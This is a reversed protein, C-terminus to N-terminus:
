EAVTPRAQAKRDDAMQQGGRGFRALQVSFEGRQGGFSPAV